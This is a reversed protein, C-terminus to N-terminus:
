DQNGSAAAAVCGGREKGPGCPSQPLGARATGRCTLERARSASGRMPAREETPTNLASERELVRRCPIARVYRQCRFIERPWGRCTARPIEDLFKEAERPGRLSHRNRREFGSM